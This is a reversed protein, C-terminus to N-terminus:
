KLSTEARGEETKININSILKFKLFKSIFIPTALASIGWITHQGEIQRELSSRHSFIANCSPCIYVM